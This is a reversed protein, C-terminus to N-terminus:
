GSNQTVRMEIGIEKLRYRDECIHWMIYGNIFDRWLKGVVGKEGIENRVADMTEVTEKCIQELVHHPECCSTRARNMINTNMETGVVSEKFFSLIDNVDDIIDLMCAIFPIYNPLHENEAALHEPFLFHAYVEGAGTKDRILKSARQGLRPPLKLGTAFMSEVTSGLMLDILGKTIVGTSYPGYLKRTETAVLELWLNMVTDDCKITNLGNGAGTTVRQLDPHLHDPNKEAKEDVYLLFTTYLAIYRKLQPCAHPYMKDAASTCAPLLMLIRSLQNEQLNRSVIWQKLETYLETHFPRAGQQLDFGVDHLWTRLIQETENRMGTM